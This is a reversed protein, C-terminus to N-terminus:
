IRFLTPLCKQYFKLNYEEGKAMGQGLDATNSKHYKIELFFLAPYKGNRCLLIDVAKKNDLMILDSNKPLVEERIIQRVYEEFAKENEFTSMTLEM